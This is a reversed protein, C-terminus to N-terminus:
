KLEKLFGLQSQTEMGVDMALYVATADFRADHYGAEKGFLLKSSDAIDRDTIKFYDCMESLKPYKYGVRRGQIKCVSTMVKMSCLERKVFLDEFARDFELRLFMLDFSINHAVILDAREFDEKVEVISDAFRKGKSLSKLKEVSFGHVMFAGYEVSDVTYFFNKGRVQQGDQIIYSLQCIQGPRLGTTETDLYIIM